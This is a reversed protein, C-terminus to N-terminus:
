KPNQVFKGRFFVGGRTRLVGQEMLQQAQVAPPLGAGYGFAVPPSSYGSYPMQTRSQQPQQPQQLGHQPKFRHRQHDVYSRSQEPMRHQQFGQKNQQSNQNQNFMPQRATQHQQLQQFFPSSEPLQLLPSHNGTHVEPHQELVQGPSTPPRPFTAQTSTSEPAREMHLGLSHHGGRHTDSPIQAIVPSHYDSAHPQIQPTQDQFPLLPALVRYGMEQVARIQQFQHAHQDSQQAPPARPLDYYVGDGIIIRQRHAAYNDSNQAAEYTAEKVAQLQQLQLEYPESCQTPRNHQDLRTASPNPSREEAAPQVQYEDYKETHQEACQSPQVTQLPRVQPNSELMIHRPQLPNQAAVLGHSRIDALDKQQTSVHGEPYMREGRLPSNPLQVGIYAPYGQDPAVLLAWLQNQAAALAAQYAIAVIEILKM